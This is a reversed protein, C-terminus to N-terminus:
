MVRLLEDLRPLQEVMEEPMSPRNAKYEAYMKHRFTPEKSDLVVALHSPQEKSLIRLITAAFGYVVSTHEGRKTKLPNQAFAYYSRYALASGDILFLRKDSM